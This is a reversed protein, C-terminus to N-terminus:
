FGGKVWALGGSENPRNKNQRNVNRANATHYSRENM